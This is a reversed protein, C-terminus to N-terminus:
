IKETLLQKNEMFKASDLIERIQRAENRLFRIRDMLYQRAHFSCEKMKKRWTRRLRDFLIGQNDNEPQLEDLLKLLNKGQQYTTESKELDRQLIRSEMICDEYREEHMIFYQEECQPDAVPSTSNNRVVNDLFILKQCAIAPLPRHGTEAKSITSADVGLIGAVQARSLGLRERIIKLAKMDISEQLAPFIPGSKLFHTPKALDDTQVM